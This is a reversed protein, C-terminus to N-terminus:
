KYQKARRRGRQRPPTTHRPRHTAPPPSDRPPPRAISLAELHSTSRQGHVTAKMAKVDAYDAVGAPASALPMIAWQYLNDRREFPILQEQPTGKAFIFYRDDNLYSYVKEQQEFFQDCSFLTDRFTPVLRVDRILIKVFKGQRDRVLAPMDGMKTIRQPKGDVGTVSANCPRLNILDEERWHVHWTCGSDVM